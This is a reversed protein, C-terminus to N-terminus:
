YFNYQDPFVVSNSLSYFLNRNKELIDKNPSQIMMQYIHNDVFTHTMIGYLTFTFNLREGTMKTDCIAGPFNDIVFYKPNSAGEFNMVEKVGGAKLYDKIEDTPVGILEEPLNYVLIVFQVLKNNDTRDKSWKQVINPRDAEDQEFGIPTRIEFNLGKAKPHGNSKYVEGLQAFCNFSFGILILLIRM